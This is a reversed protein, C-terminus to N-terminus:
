SVSLVHANILLDDPPIPSLMCFIRAVPDYMAPVDPADLPSTGMNRTNLTHEIPTLHKM